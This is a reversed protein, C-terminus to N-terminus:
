RKVKRIEVKEKRTHLVAAFLRKREGCSQRLGHQTAKSGDVPDPSMSGMFFNIKLKFASICKVDASADSHHHM